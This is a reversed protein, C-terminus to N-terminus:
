LPVLMHGSQLQRTELVPRVEVEVCSRACVHDSRENETVADAALEMALRGSWDEVVHLWVLLRPFLLHLPFLQRRVAVRDHFQFQMCLSAQRASLPEEGGRLETASEDIWCHDSM